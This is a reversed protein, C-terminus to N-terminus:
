DLGKCSVDSTGYQLHLDHEFHCLTAAGYKSTYNGSDLAARGAQDYHHDAAELAQQAALLDSAAHRDSSVLHNNQMRVRGRHHEAVDVLHSIAAVDARMAAFWARYNPFTEAEDASLSARLSSAEPEALDTRNVVSELEVWKKEMAAAFGDDKASLAILRQRATRIGEITGLDLTQYVNTVELKGYQEELRKESTLLSNEIAYLSGLLQRLREHQLKASEPVEVGFFFARIRSELTDSAQGAMAYSGTLGMITCILLNGV